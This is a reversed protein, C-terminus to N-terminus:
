NEGENVKIVYNKMRYERSIDLKWVTNGEEDESLREFGQTRYFEKVMGNKATPYYYGKILTIGKKRCEQVLMDMMAFEMDRKLVRCSMLWLIIDLVGDNIEGIAVSVVGNDGFCDMLKGYLTIYKDDAAAQEIEDQTYRRTTLNFQNSKNTLQAIRSMYIAEFPRITAHMQLSLLYDEYNAYSNQMVTRKVNERYMDNRKLDDKSFHTMEFYGARDIAYVYHEVKDMVPIATGPVQQKIIEREAPNDDVFVFSEPLLTLEKAMQVLNMSKPEWNAKIQIFDDPKLIMQPHNLGAIANESENKSIVNM